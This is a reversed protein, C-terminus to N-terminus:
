LLFNNDLFWRWNESTWSSPTFLNDGEPLKKSLSKSVKQYITTKHAHYYSLALNLISNQIENKLTYFTINM